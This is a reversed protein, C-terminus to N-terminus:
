GKQLATCGQAVRCGWKDDKESHLCTMSLWASCGDLLGKGPTMGLSLCEM